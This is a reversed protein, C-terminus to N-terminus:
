RSFFWNILGTFEAWKSPFENDVYSGDSLSSKCYGILSQKVYKQGIVLSKNQKAWHFVEICNVTFGLM